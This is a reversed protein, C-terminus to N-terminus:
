ISTIWNFGTMTQVRQPDSELEILGDDLADEVADL